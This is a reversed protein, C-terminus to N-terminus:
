YEITLELYAIEGDGNLIYSVLDGKAVDFLDVFEDFDGDDLTLMTANEAVVYWKDLLIMDNRTSIGNVEVDTAAFTAVTAKTIVDGDLELKYIGDDGLVDDDDTYLELEEGDMYVTAVQVKDDDANYVLEIDEVLAFIADDAEGDVDDTIIVELEGDDNYVGFGSIKDELNSEKVVAYDDDTSDFIVAGDALKFTAKTTDLDTLTVLAVYELTEIQDDDNLIYKVLTGVTLTADENFGLLIDDGDEEAVVLDFEETELTEDIYTASDTVSGDEDDVEVFVDYIVVEDDQTALKIIPYEDVEYEEGFRGPAALGTDSNIVVAYDTPEAKTTESAVIKGNHDLFFVGREGLEATFGSVKNTKYEKGSIYAYDSGARTVRGEVTDRSVVLEVKADDKAAYAVVVDDKEIDEIADVAGTVTVQDLDVDSGDKPLKIGDLNTRGDRYVNAILKAATQERVVLGVLEDDKDIKDNEKDEEELGVVTIKEFDKSVIDDADNDDVDYIIEAGNYFVPLLEIADDFDLTHKKANTDKVVFTSGTTVSDVTGTIVVSNNDKVYVVDGDKVYVVLSQYMYPALDVVDGQYNRHDPDIHDPNVVIDDREALRSLLIRAERVEDYYDFIFTVNGDVDVTVLSADLANFLLQAVGGRDAGGAVQKIGDLLDLESAKVKFNTPWTMGKLENSNDTYGLARVVMTIAEDYTVQRDPTFNGDGTGIVLGRGAALAIWADAWHGQTDAFNSKAGSVLEGYGLIEVILKAMEARTVIREPKYTGDEYGTIVGLAALVDVAEEYDGEVDEFTAAFAFSFSSLVMAIVLVLSLVKKM